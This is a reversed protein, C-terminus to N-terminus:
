KPNFEIKQRVKLAIPVGDKEAPKFKWKRLADVAPGEFAAHSSDVVSIHIPRGDIGVVWVIDVFGKVGSQRMRDPFVPDVKRILEPLTDPSISVSEGLPALAENGGRMAIMNRTWLEEIEDIRALDEKVRNGVHPDEKFYSLLERARDFDDENLAQEAAAVAQELAYESNLLEVLKLQSESQKGSEPDNDLSELISRATGFEGLDAADQARGFAEESKLRYIEMLKAKARDGVFLSGTFPQVLRIAERYDRQVLALDSSKGAQLFDREAVFREVPNGFREKEVRAIEAEIEALELPEGGVAELAEDLKGDLELAKAKELREVSPLSASYARLWIVYSEYRERRFESLAKESSNDSAKAVREAGELDRLQTESLELRKQIAILNKELPARKSQLEGLLQDNKLKEEQQSKEVLREVEAARIAEAEVRAQERESLASKWFWAGVVVFVIALGLGIYLPIASRRSVSPESSEGAISVVETSSELEPVVDLEVKPESDSFDAAVLVTDEAFVPLEEADISSEVIEIAEDIRKLADAYKRELRSTPAKDCKANLRDRLERYAQHRKEESVGSELGLMRYSEELTMVVTCFVHVM